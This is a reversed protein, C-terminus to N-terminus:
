CDDGHAYEWPRSGDNFIDLKAAVAHCGSLSTFDSPLSATPASSLVTYRDRQWQSLEVNNVNAISNPLAFSRVFGRPRHEEPFSRASIPNNCHGDSGLISHQNVYEWHCAEVTYIQGEYEILAGPGIGQENLRPALIERATKIKIAESNIDNKRLACTRRTHGERQRCYSCKRNKGKSAIKNQQEKKEELRRRAWDREWDDTFNDEALQKEYEAISDVL